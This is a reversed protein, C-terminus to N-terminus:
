FSFNFLVTRSSGRGGCAGGSFCGINRGIAGVGWGGAARHRTVPEPRGPRRPFLLGTSSSPTYHASPPWVIRGGETGWGGARPQHSGPCGSQALLPGSAMTTARGLNMLLGRGDWGDRSEQHFTSVTADDMVTLVAAGGAPWDVELTEFVLILKRGGRVTKQGIIWWQVKDQLKLQKGGAPLHCEHQLWAANRCQSQIISSNPCPMGLITINRFFSPSRKDSHSKDTQSNFNSLIFSEAFLVSSSQHKHQHSSGSSGQVTWWNWVIQHDLLDASAVVYLLLEM